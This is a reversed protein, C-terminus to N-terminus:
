WSLKKTYDRRASISNDQIIWGLRDCIAAMLASHRSSHTVSACAM